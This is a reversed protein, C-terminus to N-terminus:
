NFFVDYWSAQQGYSHSEQAASCGEDLGDYPEMHEAAHMQVLHSFNSVAITNCKSKLRSLQELNIGLRQAQQLLTALLQQADVQAHQMDMFDELEDM